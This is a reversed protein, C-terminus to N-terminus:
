DLCRLLAKLYGVTYARSRHDWDTDGEVHPTHDPIMMGSFGVERLLRVVELADYNGEDIWTEHFSPVTGEVDRFHVYVIQDREGFHRIVEELDAGMESWCGLCLELGHNDSPVLDMARQFNEFNRLLQPVGGLSEVPPDSPHACMTVGAEEAVPLLESLFYEYNEWLEAETYERDHTLSDDAEALDFSTATAGGRLTARGTRWVGSPMWHYGFVPVGAEGMNRVTNKMHELQEERGERGLMVDDYFRLPVNEIANLRLGADEIRERLTRLNEASWEREGTLPMEEGKPLHPYDPDYQYMNLLVDDVGLQKIFRLRDETPDTFQGLGVRMPLEEFPVAAPDTDSATSDNM